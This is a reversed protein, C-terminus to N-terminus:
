WFAEHCQGGYRSQLKNQGVDTHDYFIIWHSLLIFIWSVLLLKGTTTRGGGARGRLLLWPITASWEFTTPHVLPLSCRTKRPSVTPRPNTPSSTTSSTHWRFPSRKQEAAALDRAAQCEFIASSNPLPNIGQPRIHGKLQPKHLANKVFSHYTRRM